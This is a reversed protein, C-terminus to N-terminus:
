LGIGFSFEINPSYSNYSQDISLVPQYITLDVFNKHQNFDIGVGGHAIVGLFNEGYLKRYGGWTLGLSLYTNNELLTLRKLYSIKPFLFQYDYDVGGFPNLYMSYGYFGSSFDYGNTETLTRIGIEYGPLPKSKKSSLKLYRYYFFSSNTQAEKTQTNNSVIFEPNSFLLLPSITFVILIHNLFINFNKMIGNPKNHILKSGLELLFSWTRLTSIM